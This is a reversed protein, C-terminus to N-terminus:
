GGILACFVPKHDELLENMKKDASVSMLSNCRKLCVVTDEPLVRCAESRKYLLTDYLMIGYEDVANSPVNKTVDSLKMFYGEKDIEDYLSKDILVIFCYGTNLQSIISKRTETNFAGNYYIDNKQYEEALAPSVYVFDLINADIKGNNTTDKEAFAAIDNQLKEKEDGVFAHSGAYVVNVDYEYRGFLSTIAIIVVVAAFIGAFTHWKYHYWYNELWKSIKSKEM